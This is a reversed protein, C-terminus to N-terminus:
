EIEYKNMLRYLTARSIGLESAAEESTMVGHSIMDRARILAVRDVNKPRRGISRNEEASAKRRAYRDSWLITRLLECITFRNDDNVIVAGITVDKGTGIANLISRCLHPATYQPDEFRYEARDNSFRKVELTDGFYRWDSRIIWELRDLYKMDAESLLDWKDVRHESPSRETIFVPEVDKRHYRERRLSLDIGPIGQFEDRPLIDIIKYRPIFVYEFHDDEGNTHYEIDCIRYNVGLLDHFVITGSTVNEKM